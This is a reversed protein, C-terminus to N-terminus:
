KKSAKAKSNFSLALSIWYEFDKKNKFGEESVKIWGPMAKGRMIVARSNKKKLAENQIEPDVRCMLEDKSVSVCMKDNVMFTVGRFMIKEEVNPLDSLRERIRAALKENYAM